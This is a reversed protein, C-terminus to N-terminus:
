TVGRPDTSIGQQLDPQGILLEGEPAMMACIKSGRSRQVLRCHDPAMSDSGRGYIIFEVM